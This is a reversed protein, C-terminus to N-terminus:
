RSEEYEGSNQLVARLQKMNQNRDKVYRCPVGAYIKWGELTHKVFSMAGVATGEELKVGPLITSGTGVSVYDELIVQGEIVRRYATPIMSNNLQEGSFDDSVAYVACRSSVTVFDQLVIGKTGGILCTYASIHIYSGLKINGSLICFDDIRINDGLIMQEPNYISAKRSVLVNKGYKLFGIAKLESESFFSSNENQKKEVPVFAAAESHKLARCCKRYIWEFYEAYEPNDVRRIEIMERLGEYLRIVAHGSASKFVWFPLYKKKVMLGWFHFFSVTNSADADNPDIPVNEDFKKYLNHRATTYEKNDGQQFYEKVAGLNSIRISAVGVLIASIGSLIAVINVVDKIHYQKIYEIIPDFLTINRGDLIHFGVIFAICVFSIVVFFYTKNKNNIM